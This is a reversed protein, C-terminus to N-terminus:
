KKRRACSNSTTLHHFSSHLNNSPQFCKDDDDDDDDSSLTIIPFEQDTGRLFTSKVQQQIQPMFYTGCKQTSRVKDDYKEPLVRLHSPIMLIVMTTM